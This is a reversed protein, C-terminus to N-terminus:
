ATISFVGETSLKGCDANRAALAEADALMQLESVGSPIKLDGRFRFREPVTSFLEDVSRAGITALMQQVDHETLQTYRM